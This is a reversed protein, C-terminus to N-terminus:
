SRFCRKPCHISPCSCRVSLTAPGPCSPHHDAIRISPCIRVPRRCSRAAARAATRISARRTPSQTTELFSIVTLIFCSCSIRKPSSVQAGGFSDRQRSRSVAAPCRRSEPRTCRVRWDQSYYRWAVAGRVIPQWGAGTHVFTLCTLRKNVWNALGLVATSRSMTACVDNNHPGWTGYAGNGM